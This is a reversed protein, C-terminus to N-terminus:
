FNSFTVHIQIKLKLLYNLTASTQYHKGIKNAFDADTYTPTRKIIHLRFNTKQFTLELFMKRKDNNKSNLFKEINYPLLLSECKIFIYM